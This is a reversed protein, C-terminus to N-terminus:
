WSGPWLFALLASTQGYVGILTVCDWVCFNLTVNEFDRAQKSNKNWYGDACGDFAILSTSLGLWILACDSDPNRNARSRLNVSHTRQGFM